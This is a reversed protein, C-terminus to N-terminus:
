PDLRDRLRDALEALEAEQRRAGDVIAAPAKSTFAEDALRARVAALRGDAEELEREIRARDRTAADADGTTPQPASSRRCSGPPWSCTRPAM